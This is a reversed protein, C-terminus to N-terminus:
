SVWVGYIQVTNGFTRYSFKDEGFKLLQDKSDVIPYLSWGLFTSFEEYNSKTPDTLGIEEKTFPRDHYWKVEHYASTSHNYDYYFIITLEKEEEASSSAPTSSEASSSQASGSSQQSSAEGSSQQSSSTQGSSSQQSSSTPESSSQQSSSSQSTASSSGGAGCASM